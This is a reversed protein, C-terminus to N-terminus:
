LLKTDYICINQFNQIKQFNGPLSYGSSVRNCQTLGMGHDSFIFLFDITSIALVFHLEVCFDLWNYWYKKLIFSLWKLYLFM